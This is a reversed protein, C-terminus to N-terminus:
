YHFLVQPAYLSHLGRGLMTDGDISREDSEVVCSDPVDSYLDDTCVGSGVRGSGGVDDGATCM